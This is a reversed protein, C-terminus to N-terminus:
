RKQSKKACIVHKRRAKKGEQKGINEKNNKQCTQQNHSTCQANYKLNPYTYMYRSKVCIRTYEITLKNPKVGNNCTSKNSHTRVRMRDSTCMHTCEITQM